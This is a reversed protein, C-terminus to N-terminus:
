TGSGSGDSSVVPATPEVRREKSPTKKDSVPVRKVGSSKDDKLGEARKELPACKGTLQVKKEFLKKLNNLKTASKAKIIPGAFMDGAANGTKFVMKQTFQTSGNSLKKFYYTLSVSEFDPNKEASIKWIKNKENEQVTWNLQAKGSRPSDYKEQYVSGVQGPLNESSEACSISKTATHWRPWHAANTAASFVQEISAPIIVQNTM